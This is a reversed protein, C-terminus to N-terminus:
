TGSPCGMGQKGTVSDVQSSAPLARHLPLSPIFIGLPMTTERRGVREVGWSIGKEKWSAGSSCQAWTWGTPTPEWPSVATPRHMLTSGSHASGVTVSNSPKRAKWEEGTCARGLEEEQLGSSLLVQEGAGRSGGPVLVLQTWTWGRDRGVAASKKVQQQEEEAGLSGHLCLGPSM